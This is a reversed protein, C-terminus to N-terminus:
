PAVAWRVSVRIRLDQEGRAIPTSPAAAEMTKARAAYPRVPDPAADQEEISLPRGLAVGAGSAYLEAKRRADAIAAKRAEDLRADRDSVDFALGEIENSGAAVLSDLLEGLRDVARSRVTVTNRVEYGVLKPARQQQGDGYDYQPQVTLGATAVDRDALGAQKLAALVRSMAAANAKLAVGASPARTVVGSSVIAIDPAVSVSGEGVVAIAPPAPPEAQAHAAGTVAVAFCALAIRATLM